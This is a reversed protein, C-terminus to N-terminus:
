VKPSGAKEIQERIVIQVPLPTESAPQKIASGTIEVRQMPADPAQAWAAGHGLLGGM